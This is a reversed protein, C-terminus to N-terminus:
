VIPIYRLLKITKTLPQFFPIVSLYSILMSIAAAYCLGVINLKLTVGVHTLLHYKAWMSYLANVVESPYPLAKIPSFLWFCIFAALWIAALYSRTFSGISGYVRFVERIAGTSHARPDAKEIKVAVNEM